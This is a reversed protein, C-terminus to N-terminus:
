YLVWTCKSLAKTDQMNQSELFLKFNLSLNKIYSWFRKLVSIYPTPHTGQVERSHHIRRDSLASEDLPPEKIVLM